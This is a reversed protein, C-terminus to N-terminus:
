PPTLQENANEFKQQIDFISQGHPILCSLFWLYVMAGILISMLAQLVLDGADM